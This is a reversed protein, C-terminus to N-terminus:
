ILCFYFMGRMNIVSSTNFHNVNLNFAYCDQFMDSMDKVSSTNFTSLNLSYLKNTGLFMGRMNTIHSTNFDNFYITSLNLCFAFMYETNIIQSSDIKIFKIATINKLEYFMVSCNVLPYDWKIIIENYTQSLNIGYDIVEVSKNNVLVETPNHEFRSNYITRNNLIYQTGNGKLTILIETISMISFPIKHFIIFLFIIELIIIKRNKYKINIISKLPKNLSIINKRQKTPNNKM